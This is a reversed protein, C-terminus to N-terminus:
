GLARAAAEIVRQLAAPIYLGPPACAVGLAAPPIIALAPESLRGAARQAVGQAMRLVITAMGVFILALLVLYAIAVM